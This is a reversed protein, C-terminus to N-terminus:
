ARNAVESFVYDFAVRGHSGVYHRSLEAKRSQHGYTNGIAKEVYTRGPQHGASLYKIYRSEMTYGHESSMIANYDMCWKNKANDKGRITCKISLM